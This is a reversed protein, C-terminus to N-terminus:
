SKEDDNDTADNEDDNDDNDDDDEEDVDNEDDTDDDNEDDRHTDDHPPLVNEACVVSNVVHNVRLGQSDWLSLGIFM